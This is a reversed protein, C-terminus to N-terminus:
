EDTCGKEGEGLRELRINAITVTLKGETSMTFPGNIKSLDFEDGKFCNLPIPLSFWEGAPFEKLMSRVPVKAGCPYGCDMGITVNASPRVDVKLDITLSAADKYASLDIPSGYIGFNAQGKKRSWTLQIADGEGNFNAPAVSIKGTKSQGERNSLGVSWNSPDGVQMGREGVLAGKVLYFHNPNLEQATATLSLSPLVTLLSLQALFRFSKLM